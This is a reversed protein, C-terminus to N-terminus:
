RKNASRNTIRCHEKDSSKEDVRRQVGEADQLEAHQAAPPVPCVVCISLYQRSCPSLVVLAIRGVNWASPEVLCLDPIEPEGSAEVCSRMGFCALLITLLTSHWGGFSLLIAARNLRDVQDDLKEIKDILPLVRRAIERLTEDEPTGGLAAIVIPISLMATM